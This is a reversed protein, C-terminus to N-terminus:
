KFPLIFFDSALASCEALQSSIACVLLEVEQFSSYKVKSIDMGKIIHKM